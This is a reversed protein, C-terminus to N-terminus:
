VWNIGILETILCNSLKILVYIKRCRVLHPFERGLVASSEYNEKKVACTDEIEYLVGPLLTPSSHNQFVLGAYNKCGLFYFSVNDQRASKCLLM